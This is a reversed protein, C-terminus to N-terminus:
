KMEKEKKKLRSSGFYFMAPVLLCPSSITFLGHGNRANCTESVPNPRDSM